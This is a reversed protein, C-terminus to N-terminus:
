ETKKKKEYYKKLKIAKNKLKQMEQMIQLEKNITTGKLGGETM